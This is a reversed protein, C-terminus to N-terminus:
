NTKINKILYKSLNKVGMGNKLPANFINGVGTEQELGTGPFLSIRSSAYLVTEDKYFEKKHAMVMTYM